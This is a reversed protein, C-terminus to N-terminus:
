EYFEKVLSTPLDASALVEVIRRAVGPVGFPHRVESRGMACASRLANAIENSDYNVDLVSPCRVRGRQREGINVSRTGLAPAEIILSSSNGTAVDAAKLLGLYLRQGLSSVLVANLEGMAILREWERNLESGEADANAKTVVVLGPRVLKLGEWLATVHERVKGPSRTEPHLTALVLPRALSLGLAAELEEASVALEGLADLFVAGVNFVRRPDEGLHIVRQRYEEAATFHWWSMKTMSHRLADDVAGLTLEGGHIHAVPVNQMTAAATAAFAEYRDGLVVLLAPKEQVLVKGVGELARASALTVDPNGELIPIRHAVPNGDAEIEGLTMGLAASLHSGTVILCLELAPHQRIEAILHKLLGYDARTGTLVAIKRKTTM